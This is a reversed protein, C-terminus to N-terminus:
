AENLLYETIGVMYGYALALISSLVLVIPSLFFMKVPRVLANLLLTSPSLASKEGLAVFISEPHAKRLTVARQHLLRPPYTERLCLFCILTFAGSQPEQKAFSIVTRLLCECPDCHGLLDM